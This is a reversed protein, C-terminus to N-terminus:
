DVPWRLRPVAVPRSRWWATTSRIPSSSMAREMWRWAMPLFLGSGVTTQAGGGAQVKVVRNNNSDAIFVDGAGNVTVGAPFNLGSAVTTQTGPGFAVAPGQGEGYVLTTVSVNGSSDRLEVAGMRLRPARPSFAVNVTCSSGETVDGTCTSSSALTFDLNPAGQTLVKISGLTGDVTVHYNLMASQSCPAPSAQGSPCVNANGLSVAIRQVEVVRNNASDGIFVDGGGDVAVGVPTNLGSAVTTQAGGDAPVRVVRDNGTDAIFVDGAGDVAV